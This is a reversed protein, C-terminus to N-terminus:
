ARRRRLAALAAIGILGLTSPEPVCTITAEASVANNQCVKASIITTDPSPDLPASESSEVAPGASNTVSTDPVAQYLITEGYAASGAALAVATLAIRGLRNM